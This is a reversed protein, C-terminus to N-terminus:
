TVPFHRCSVLIQLRESVIPIDQYLAATQQARSWFLSGAIIVSSKSNGPFALPITRSGTGDLSLFAGHSLARLFTGVLFYQQATHMDKPCGAVPIFSLPFHWLAEWLREGALQWFHLVWVWERIFTKMEKTCSSLDLPPLHSPSPAPAGPPIFGLCVDQTTLLAGRNTGPFSLITSIFINWMTNVWRNM